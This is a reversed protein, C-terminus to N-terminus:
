ALMQDIKEVLEAVLFPKGAIKNFGQADVLYYGRILLRL